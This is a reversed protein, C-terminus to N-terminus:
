RRAEIGVAQEAWANVASVITELDAQLLGPHVPLSLVESALRRAMPYKAGDYGLNRYLPQDPLVHPYHVASEVGREGLWAQLAERGQPVRVTYQHWVCANADAPEPPVIVGRLHESLYAANARRKDNFEHLRALQPLGIASAMDTTRYNFGLDTSLYRESQGHSRLARLKDAIAADDTSIMGGEGTMVNKTAYFSFCGTGFSGARRGGLSAGHAQAADEILAIGHRKAIGGLTEVDCLRGYLHVPLLAKTRPTIAAQVRSADINGDETVDVFVPRAGTALIMNGTAQFTFPTTVVEDGVGVGHALLALHLAATGNVVAVAERTHSVERAFTEEFRRTVPGAALQGSDLVAMVAAREEAGIQLEAMRIV